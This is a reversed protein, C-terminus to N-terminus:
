HREWPLETDGEEYWEGEYMIFGQSRKYIQGDWTITDDDYALRGTQMDVMHKMEHMLIKREEESGPEINNSIFITGDNNAEADVGEELDKRIVDVGPVSADDKDFIGQNPKKGFNRSESGLKFAMNVKKKLYILM